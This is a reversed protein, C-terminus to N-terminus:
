KKPGPGKLVELAARRALSLVLTSLTVPMDPWLLAAAKKLLQHTHTRYYDNHHTGIDTNRGVM